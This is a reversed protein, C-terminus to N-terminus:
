LRESSHRALVLRKRCSIIQTTSQGHNRLKMRISIMKFQMEETPGFGSAIVSNKSTSRPHVSIAIHPLFSRTSVLQCVLLGKFPTNAPAGPAFASFKVEVFSQQIHLYLPVQVADAGVAVLVPRHLAYNSKQIREKERCEGNFKHELNQRTAENHVSMCIQAFNLVPKVKDDDHGTEEHSYGLCDPTIIKLVNRDKIHESKNTHQTREPIREM